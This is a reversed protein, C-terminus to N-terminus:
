ALEGAIRGRTMATLAGADTGSAWPPFIPALVRIRIAQKGRLIFGRKPLAAATGDIVIPLIPIGSRLALEFAGAKFEGLAGGPSRTGEPFIMVSSGGRLAAEAGRMMSLNGKLRGREIRIYRNLTM